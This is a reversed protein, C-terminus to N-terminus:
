GGTEIWAGASPAVMPQEDNEDEIKRKLGRVRPPHSSYSQIVKLISTHKLGRVRPPHSAALATREAISALKLGRVRPPHSKM